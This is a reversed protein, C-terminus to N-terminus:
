FQRRTKLLLKRFSLNTLEESYMNNVQVSQNFKVIIGFFEDPGMEKPSEGFFNVTDYYADEAAKFSKVIQEIDDKAKEMFPVMIDLYRGKPASSVIQQVANFDKQLTGVESAIVSLSLRAAAVTSSLDEFFSLLYANEKELMTVM